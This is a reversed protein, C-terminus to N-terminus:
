RFLDKEPDRVLERARGDGPRWSLGRVVAAPARDLKGMVLEAAAALEDPWCMQTVRLEYGAPDRQGSYDELAQMGAVGIAFNVLGNRWPRGFTDSVVVAVEAGSRDRVRDRIRAASADPDEPLLVVTGAAANSADVGANACVLGHRTECILVGHDMRVIRRSERLVVEVQRPDKEWLSAIHLAFASPEVADLAVVRGEAKSVIKQTVVLVDGSVPPTGQGVLADVILAGVDDGARVEPIDTVAFIRLESPM